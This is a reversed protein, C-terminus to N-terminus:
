SSAGLFESAPLCDHLWASIHEVLIALEFARDSPGSDEFDVLRVREGDWLFNALNADGQGLVPGQPGAPVAARFDPGARDLWGAAAALARRTCPSGEQGAGALATRVQRTFAAANLEARPARRTSGARDQWGPPAAQWLRSLAAALASAQPGSVPAAGLCRGPLWSMWIVPPDGDLRARIPRPSLGPAREALLHLARWEREPEGRRWSRYRKVVVGREADISVEHTTGPSAATV